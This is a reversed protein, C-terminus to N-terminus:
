KNEKNKFYEEKTISYSILDNRLGEKDIIRARLTGEYKMGSKKMVAGSAPNKDMHEAFIVDMDVEEFLFEVVKKLAQTAYGKNWYKEGYCYGIECAGYPLWKKSAVDITGIVVHTKREEVIWRYTTLNEYDQEWMEFLKETEEQNKHKTWMVYKDVVDSSCWNHYADKADNKTLKRLILDKTELEKTGIHKMLVEKQKKVIIKSIKIINSVLDKKMKM